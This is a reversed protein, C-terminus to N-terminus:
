KATKQLSRVYAVISELKDDNLAPNGGKPPMAIKSTNAPDSSDRGRKIFAILKEDDLGKAFASHVLDKGNNPLGKADAGHCASCSSVFLKAGEAITEEDVEEEEADAGAASALVPAIAAKAALRAAKAAARESEAKAELAALQAEATALQETSVREPRQLARMYAVVASLQEDTLGPNGGKPPMPVRTTNLPDTVPRGAKIFEVLKSDGTRLSFLSTTLNKGQGPKGRGDTGHCVSCTATFVAKGHAVTMADLAEGPKLAVTRVESGAPRPYSWPALLGALGAGLLWVVVLMGAIGLVVNLATQDLHEDTRTTATRANM